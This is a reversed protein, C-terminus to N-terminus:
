IGCFSKIEAEGMSNPHRKNHFRIFRLTWGVYTKETAYALNRARICLRLQDIFRKSSHEVYVPM